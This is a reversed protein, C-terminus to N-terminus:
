LRRKEPEAPVAPVRAEVLADRMMDMLQDRYERIKTVSSEDAADFRFSTITHGGSLGIELFMGGTRDTMIHLFAVHEPQVVLGDFIRVDLSVLRAM